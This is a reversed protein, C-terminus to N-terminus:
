IRDISTTDEELEIGEFLHKPDIERLPSDQPTYSYALGACAGAIAGSKPSLPSESHSALNSGAKAGKIITEPNTRLVWHNYKEPTLQEAIYRSAGVTGGFQKEQIGPIEYQEAFDAGSLGREMLVDPDVSRSKGTVQGHANLLAGGLSAGGVLLPTSYPAYKAVSVSKVGVEIGTQLVEGWDISDRSHRVAEIEEREIVSSETAQTTTDTNVKDTGASLESLPGVEDSTVALSSILRVARNLESEDHNTDIHFEFKSDVTAVRLLYTHVFEENEFDPEYNSQIEIDVIREIPAEVLSDGGEVTSISLIRNNTVLM